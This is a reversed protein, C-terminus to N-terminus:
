KSREYNVKTQTKNGNPCNIRSHYLEGDMKCMWVNEYTQAWANSCLRCYYVMVPAAEKKAM